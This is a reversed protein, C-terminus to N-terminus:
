IACAAFFREPNSIIKAALEAGVKDFGQGETIWGKGVMFALAKEKQSSTKGAFVAALNPQEVRHLQGFLPALSAFEFPVRDALGARNKGDWAASHTTFLARERGGAGKAKGTASETITTRYNAFLVADSGEKLRQSLGKPLKLEYRDYGASAEPPEHKRVKSHALFVVNIGRDIVADLQRMFAAFEEELITFGKGYGFSEISPQKNKACIDQTLYDVAWDITDFVLTQYGILSDGIARKILAWDKVEVRAVDLQDTGRECDLFLPSPFQAALTSKGVGEPGYITIKQARPRTGKSINM